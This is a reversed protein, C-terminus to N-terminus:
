KIRRLLKGNDSEPVANGVWYQLLNSISNDIAAKVDNSDFSYAQIVDDNVDLLANDMGDAFEEDYSDKLCKGKTVCEEIMIAFNKLENIFSTHRFNLAM